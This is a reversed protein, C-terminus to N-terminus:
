LTQSGITIPQAPKEQPEGNLGLDTAFKEKLELRRTKASSLTVFLEHQGTFTNFVHYNQNEEDNDLDANIWTTDNGNVIEKAITFRYDEELLIFSKIEALKIKASDFDEIEFQEGTNPNRILYTM